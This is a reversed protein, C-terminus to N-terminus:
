ASATALHQQVLLITREVARLHTEAEQAAARQEAARRACIADRRWDDPGVLQEWEDATRRSEVARGLCVYRERRLLEIVYQM